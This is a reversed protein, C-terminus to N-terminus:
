RRGLIRRATRAPTAKAVAPATICPSKLFGSTLGNVSPREEAEDNPAARIMTSPGTIKPERNAPVMRSAPTAKETFDRSRMREANMKPRKLTM